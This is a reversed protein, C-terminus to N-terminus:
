VNSLYWFFRHVSVYEAGGGRDGTEGGELKESDGLGRFAVNPM